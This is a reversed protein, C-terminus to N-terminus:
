GRLASVLVCKPYKDLYQNGARCCSVFINRFCSILMNYNNQGKYNCSLLVTYTFLTKGGSGPEPCEHCNPFRVPTRGKFTNQVTRANNNNQTQITKNNSAQWDMLSPFRQQTKIEVLSAGGSDLIRRTSKEWKKMRDKKLFLIRPPFDIKQIIRYLLGGRDTIRRM